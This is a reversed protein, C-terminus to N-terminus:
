AVTLTGDALRLRRDARASVADDHTVVVFTCGRDSTLADLLDLVVKTTEEDLNGSPEDALILEPDNAIARAIAVRQREGGSLTAPIADARAGLGVQELLEHARGRRRTRDVGAVSMALEVNELATLSDLLGYHQFVFGVTDRRFAALDDGRLDGVDVGGIWLDGHQLPELGGLLALLTTKGVGSRGAIAVHEGADLIFDLDALVSLEAGDPGAYGHSLGKAVVTAGGDPARTSARRASTSAM